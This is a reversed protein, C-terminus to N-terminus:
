IEARLGRVTGFSRVMTSLPTAVTTGSHNNAVMLQGDKGAFVVGSHGHERGATKFYAWDGPKLDHGSVPRAIGQHQLSAYAADNSVQHLKRYDKDSVKGAAKLGDFFMNTSASTCGLSAALHQGYFPSGPRPLYTHQGVSHAAAAAIAESSSNNGGWSGMGTEPQTESSAFKEAPHKSKTASHHPQGEYNLSMQPLHRHASEVAAGNAHHHQQHHPHKVHAASDQFGHGFPQPRFLDLFPNEGHGFNLFGGDRPTSFPSFEESRQV